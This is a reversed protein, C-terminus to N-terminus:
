KRYNRSELANEAKESINKLDILMMHNDTGLFSKMAEKVFADANKQLQLCVYFEDKL